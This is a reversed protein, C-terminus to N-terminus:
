SKRSNALKKGLKFRILSILLINIALIYAPFAYQAFTWIKITLLTIIASIAGGLFVKYNETEPYKFSKLITPIGALGDAVISFLIAINGISTLLWLLLGVISLAGCIVDFRKIEWKSKKNVFSAIFILLPNFGVMFTMLARIGVGQTIESSFAIAPALFWLFWTIKNPKTKGKITDVLYSIGGIINFAAGLLVFNENLM